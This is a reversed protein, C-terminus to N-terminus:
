YRFNNNQNPIMNHMQQYMDNLMNPQININNQRAYQIVFQMPSLGSQYMQNALIQLQPNQQFIMQQIAQPNNGMTLFQQFIGLANNNQGYM